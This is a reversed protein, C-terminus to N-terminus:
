VREWRGGNTSSRRAADLVKQQALGDRFTAAPALASRDGDDLARKLARALEITGSGFAGGMSNGPLKPMEEGAVRSYPEGRKAMLLEAGTLRMAGMEGHITMVAQEDPGSAAANLTMVAHTRLTPVPSPAQAGVPALKLHLAALDDSTVSRGSREEIWTVLMAQVEEIEGALYRMADAFHSGVAGLIGGGRDADSWWNWERSRDGRAPSSYRVEILRVGGLEHMRERATRWAPLFRLEHDILAILEPHKEAIAVLQEAEHANLATPKECIVHKGRELFATSIELHESPPTTITVLEVDSDLLARWDHGKVNAVEFGAESFLPTQVRTAWGSGITGIKAM